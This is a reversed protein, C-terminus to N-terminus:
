LHRNPGLQNITNTLDEIENVKQRTRDMISFLNNSDGTVIIAM